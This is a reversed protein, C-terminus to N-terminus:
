PTSTAGRRVVTFTSSGALRCAPTFTASTSSSTPLSLVSPTTAHLRQNPDFMVPLRDLVRGIGGDGGGGAQALDLCQDGTLADIADCLRGCLDGAHGPYQPGVIGGEGVVKGFVDRRQDDFQHAAM